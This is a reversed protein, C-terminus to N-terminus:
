LKTYQIEKNGSLYETFQDKNLPSNSLNKGRFKDFIETKQHLVGSPRRGKISGTGRDSASDTPNRTNEEVCALRTTDGPSVHAQSHGAPPAENSLLLLPWCLQQGHSIMNM